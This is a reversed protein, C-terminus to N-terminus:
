ADAKIFGGKDGHREHGSDAAVFLPAV